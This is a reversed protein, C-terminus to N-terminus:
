HGPCEQGAVIRAGVEVGITYFFLVAACNKSSASVFPRADKISALILLSLNGLVDLRTSFDVIIPHQDEPILSDEHRERGISINYL